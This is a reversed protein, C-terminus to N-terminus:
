NYVIEFGLHTNIVTDTYSDILQNDSFFNKFVRKAGFLWVDSDETISGDTQEHYDM